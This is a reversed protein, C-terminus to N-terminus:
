VGLWIDRVKIYLGRGIHHSVRRHVADAKLAHTIAKFVSLYLAPRGFITVTGVGHHNISSRGIHEVGIRGLTGFKSYKGVGDM